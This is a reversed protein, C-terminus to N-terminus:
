DTIRCLHMSFRCQYLGVPQKKDRQPTIFSIATRYASALTQGRGEPTDNDTVTGDALRAQEDAVCRVLERGFIYRGDEIVIGNGDHIDWLSGVSVREFSRERCLRRLAVDGSVIGGDRKKPGYRIM